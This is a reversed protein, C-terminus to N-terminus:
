VFQEIGLLNVSLSDGGYPMGGYPALIDWQPPMHGMKINADCPTM